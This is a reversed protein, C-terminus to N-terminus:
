AVGGNNIERLAVIANNDREVEVKPFGVVEGGLVLESDDYDPYV